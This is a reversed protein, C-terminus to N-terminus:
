SANAYYAFFLVFMAVAMSTCIACYRTCRACPSCESKDPFLTIMVAQEDPAYSHGAFQTQASVVMQVRTSLEYSSVTPNENYYCPILGLKPIGHGCVSATLLFRNARKGTQLSEVKIHVNSSLFYDILDKAIQDAEDANSGEAIRFYSPFKPNITFAEGARLLKRDDGFHRHLRLHKAMENKQDDLRAGVKNGSFGAQSGDIIRILTEGVETNDISETNVLCAHVRKAFSIDSVSPARMSFSSFCPLITCLIVKILRKIGFTM